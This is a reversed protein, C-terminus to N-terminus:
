PRISQPYHFVDQPDFKRKVAQLRRYNAGYYYDPWDTFQIDPYNRYHHTIGAAKILQQISEFAAVMKKEDAPHDWYCQLESLYPLTRHPFCSVTRFDSNAIGGGLTNIQYVIGPNSAVREFLAQWCSKLDEPGKYMGGSANKFYLPGKRGYYRKMMHPLNEDVSKSYRDAQKILTSFENEFHSSNKYTTILITLFNGNLVFASFAENPLSQTTAFWNDLLMSFRTTTLNSYKLTYASFAPPMEYHRFKFATVVGFNGNGGGRCAWLLEPYDNMQYVKGDAMVMNAGLMSDCTLGYGRSFFGYGGGLTLGAIGVTGCSGAPLLRKKAFFADQIEQLLCGPEVIAQDGTLFTIKKMQSLNVVMGGDNSSFGEFSHGGSKVAIKLGEAVAKQVAFQVGKETKCVAIYKPFHHIRKNFTENFQAYAKENRELLLVDDEGVQIAPTKREPQHGVPPGSLTDQDPTKSDQHNGKNFCSIFPLFAIGMGLIKLFERHSYKKMAHSKFHLLRTFTIYRFSVDQSRGEM